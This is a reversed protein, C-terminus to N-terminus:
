ALRQRTSWSPLGGLIHTIAQSQTKWEDRESALARHGKTTLTYYRRKRGKEIQVESKILGKKEQGHLAPYLTGEKFDLVGESREKIEQAIKYGHSPGKELVSLVLIPLTGKLNM